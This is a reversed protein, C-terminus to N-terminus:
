LPVAEAIVRDRIMWHLGNPTTLDVKRGLLKELQQRFQITRLLDLPESFTVLLDVDSGETAESRAVSGFVRVDAVHYKRALNLVQARRTGLVERVGLGPAASSRAAPAEPLHWSKSKCRPCMRVPSKRLHWVNGCRYCGLLGGGLDPMIGVLHASVYTKSQFYIGM